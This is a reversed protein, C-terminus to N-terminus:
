PTGPPLPAPPVYLLKFKAARIDEDELCKALAEADSAKLAEQTRINIQRAEEQLNHLELMKRAEAAYDKPTPPM